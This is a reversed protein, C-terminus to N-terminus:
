SASADRRGYRNLAYACFQLFAGGGLWVQWHSFAGSAIAFRDTWNLDAAIRWFGLVFAMLAAPSLLAAIALAAHGRQARRIEQAPRKALRIRVVM